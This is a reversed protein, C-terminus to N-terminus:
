NDARAEQKKKDATLKEMENKGAEVEGENYQFERVIFRQLYVCLFLNFQNISIKNKHM